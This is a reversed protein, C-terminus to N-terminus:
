PSQHDKGALHKDLFLEQQSALSTAAHVFKPKNACRNLHQWACDQLSDYSAASDRSKLLGLKIAGAPLRGAQSASHTEANGRPRLQEGERLIGRRRSRTCGHQLQQGLAEQLSCVCREEEARPCMTESIAQFSRPSQTCITSIAPQMCPVPLTPM